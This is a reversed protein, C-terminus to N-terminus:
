LVGQFYSMLEAKKRDSVPIEFHDKMLLTGEKYYKKIFNVNVLYSQHCRLFKPSLLVSEYEKIVKSVMLNTGDQFYFTTYGKDSKCYMINEIEVIQIYDSCKLVIRSPASKQNYHNEAVSIQNQSVKFEEKKLFCKNLIESFDNEDIPKLIYGFAGLNLAQIAFDNYATIFIIQFNRETLDSFLTFSNGDKLHIDALVLEPQLMPIEIAAKVIEDSYGVIQYYPNKEIISILYKLINTEDELIYVKM